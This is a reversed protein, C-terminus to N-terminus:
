ERKKLTLLNPMLLLDLPIEPDASRIFTLTLEATLCRNPPM